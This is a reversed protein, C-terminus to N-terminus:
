RSAGMEDVVARIVGIVTLYVGVDFVFSLTLKVEGIVPVAFTWIEPGLFAGSIVIGALGAAVALGLGAALWPIFGGSRTPAGEQEVFRRLVIAAGAALAAIFGGGPEDHGRLLLYLSMVVVVPVVLRIMTRAIVTTV